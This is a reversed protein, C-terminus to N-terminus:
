FILLDVTVDASTNLWLTLNQSRNDDQSDWIDAQGRKRVVIWGSLGQGLTHNVVNVKGTELTVGSVVVANLLFKAVISSFTADVNQQLTNIVRLVNGWSNINNIDLIQTKFKKFSM